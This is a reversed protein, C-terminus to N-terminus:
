STCPKESPPESPTDRSLTELYRARAEKFRHYAKMNALRCQMAKAEAAEEPTSYIPKRGRKGLTLYGHELLFSRNIKEKM